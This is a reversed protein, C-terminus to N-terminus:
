RLSPDIKSNGRLKELAQQFDAGTLGHAAEENQQQTIKLEKRLVVTERPARIGIKAGQATIALIEVEVDDGILLSEGPRRRLVLM